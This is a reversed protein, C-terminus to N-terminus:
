IEEVKVMHRVVKIMGAIQPTLTKEVTHNIRKLGLAAMTLQQNKLTRVLGKTQTIRVKKDAM